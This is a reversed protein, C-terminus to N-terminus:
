EMPKLIIKLPFGMSFGTFIKGKVLGIVGISEVAKVKVAHGPGPAAM